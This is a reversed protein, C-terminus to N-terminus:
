IMVSGGRATTKLLVVDHYRKGRRRYVRVRGDSQRLNFRSEDTFLVSAWDNHRGQGHLAHEEIDQM